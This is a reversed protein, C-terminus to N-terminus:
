EFLVFVSYLGFKQKGLLGLIINLLETKRMNKQKIQSIVLVEIFNFWKMIPM